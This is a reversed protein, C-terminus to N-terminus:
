APDSGTVGEGDALLDNFDDDPPSGLGRGPRHPDGSPGSGDYGTMAPPPIEEEYYIERGKDDEGWDIAALSAKRLTRTGLDIDLLVSIEYSRATPDHGWLPSSVWEEKPGCMPQDTKINRPWSRTRIRQGGLTYLHLGCFSVIKLRLSGKVAPWRSADAGALARVHGTRVCADVIAFDPHDPPEWYGGVEQVSRDLCGRFRSLWSGYVALIQQVDECAQLYLNVRSLKGPDIL